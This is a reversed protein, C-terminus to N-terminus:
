RPPAMGDFACMRYLLPLLEERLMAAMREDCNLSHGAGHTFEPPSLTIGTPQPRNRKERREDTQSAQDNVREVDPAESPRASTPGMPAAFPAAVPPTSVPTRGAAPQSAPAQQVDAAPKRARPPRARTRLTDALKWDKSDPFLIWTCRWANRRIGGVANVFGSPSVAKDNYLLRDGEVQCHYNKGGFVTRLLTGDPLFQSKWQVGGAAPMSISEPKHRRVWEGIAEAAIEWDQKQYGTDESAKLLQQWVEMSMPVDIRQNPYRRRM